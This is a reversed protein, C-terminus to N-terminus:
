ILSKKRGPVLNTTSFSRGSKGFVANPEKRGTLEEIRRSQYEGPGPTFHNLVMDMRQQSGIKTGHDKTVTSRNTEYNGPGPNKRVQGM